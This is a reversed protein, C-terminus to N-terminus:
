ALMSIQEEVFDVLDLVDELVYLPADLHHLVVTLQRWFDLVSYGLTIYGKEGGGGEGSGIAM